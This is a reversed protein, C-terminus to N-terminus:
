LVAGVAIDSVNSMIATPADPQPHSLLTAEALARKAKHFVNVLDDTWSLLSLAPTLSFKDPNIFVEM